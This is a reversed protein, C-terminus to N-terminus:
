TLEKNGAFAHQNITLLNEPFHIEKLGADAFALIGIENITNPLHLTSLSKCEEFARKPISTFSENEPLTVEKLATSGAFAGEGISTISNPLKITELKSVKAFSEKSLFVIKEHLTIKKLTSNEKFAGQGISTIEKLIPDSSLDLEELHTDNWKLQKKTKM